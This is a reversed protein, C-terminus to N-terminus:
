SAHEGEKTACAGKALDSEAHVAQRPGADGDLLDWLAEGRVRGRVRGGGQREERALDVVVASQPM